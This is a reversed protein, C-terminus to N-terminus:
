FFTLAYILFMGINRLCDLLNPSPIPCDLLSFPRLFLQQINLKVTCLQGRGGCREPLNFKLGHGLIHSSVPHAILWLKCDPLQTQHFLSTKIILYSCRQMSLKKGEFDTRKQSQTWTSTSTICKYMIYIFLVLLM